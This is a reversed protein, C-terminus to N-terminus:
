APSTMLGVGLQHQAVAGQLQGSDNVGKVSRCEEPEIRVIRAAPRGQAIRYRRDLCFDVCNQTSGDSAMNDHDIISALKM